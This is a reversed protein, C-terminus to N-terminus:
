FRQDLVEGSLQYSPMALVPALAQWPLTNSIRVRHPNRFDHQLM